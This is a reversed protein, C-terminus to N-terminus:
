KETVAAFGVVGPGIHAGLVPNIVEVWIERDPLLERIAAQLALAENYANSHLFAIKEFPALETLKNILRALGKRTTRVKEAKSVGNFMTLIPKIDLLEGITAMVRSMRGSRRLYKLTDLLAWVHTRKKQDELVPLIEAVSAGHAAMQAATHVLFGIGLSLQGSDVVTVQVSDMEAAATRAVDITASLTSSIHISLVEAAGEEALSGYVAHFKQPSPVATTPHDSFGPLEKYFDDRSIDIGDLLDRDGIRIYLPIVKIGLQNVIEVPLDCTSDTVVRVTM